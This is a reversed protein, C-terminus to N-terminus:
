ILNLMEALLKLYRVRWLSWTNRHAPVYVPWGGSVINNYVGDRYEEPVVMLAQEVAHLEREVANLKDKDEAEQLDMQRKVQRDHDRVIWLLRNYLSREMGGQKPIYDRMGIAELEKENM